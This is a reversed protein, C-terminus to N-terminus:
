AARCVEAVANRLQELQVPKRMVGRIHDEPLSGASEREGGARAGHQPRRRPEKRPPVGLREDGADDSRAPGPRTTRAQAHLCAGGPREGGPGRSLRGGDARRPAGRSHRRRRRDGPHSLRYAASRSFACAKGERRPAGRNPQAEGIARQDVHRGGGPPVHGHGHALPGPTVVPPSLGSRSASVTRAPPPSIPASILAVSQDFVGSPGTLRQGCLRRVVTLVQRLERKGM